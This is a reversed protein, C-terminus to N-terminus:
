LFLNQNQIHHERNLPFFEQVAKLVRPFSEFTNKGVSAVLIDNGVTIGSNTAYIHTSVKTCGFKEGLDKPAASVICKTYQIANHVYAYLVRFRFRM